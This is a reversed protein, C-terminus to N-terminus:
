QGIILEKNKNVYANSIINVNHTKMGTILMEFGEFQAEFVCSVGIFNEYSVILMDACM